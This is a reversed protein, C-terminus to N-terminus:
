MCVYVCVCRAPSGQKKVYGKEILASMSSWATYHSGAKAVTLSADCRNQAENLLQQKNMYGAFGVKQAEALLTLLIAYGGSRRAPVFERESNGRPKRPKNAKASPSVLPPRLLAQEDDPIMGGGGGRGGGGGGGGGRGGGGDGDDYDDDDDDRKGAGSAEAMEKLKKDLIRAIGDGINNLSKAEKGNHLPIPCMQLSKLAKRYSHQSQCSRSVAEKM